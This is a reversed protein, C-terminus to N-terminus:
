LVAGFHDQLGAERRPCWQYALNLSEEVLSNIDVPRHVGSGERSHLLMNKVISDTRKGHQVIKDLNDRLARLGACPQNIKRSMGRLVAEM